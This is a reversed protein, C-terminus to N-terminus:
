LLALAWESHAAAVQELSLGPSTAAHQVDEAGYVSYALERRSSPPSPSGAGEGGGLGGGGDGGWDNM